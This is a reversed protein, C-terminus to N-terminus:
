RYWAQMKAYYIDSNDAIFSRVIVATKNKASCGTKQASLIEASSSTYITISGCFQEPFSELFQQIAATSNIEIADKLTRDKELITLSDLALKYTDQNAHTNTNTQSLYFFCVLIMLGAIIIAFIADLSFIFAKTKLSLIRNERFRYFIKSKKLKLM